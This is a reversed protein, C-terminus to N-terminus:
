REEAKKYSFKQKGNDVTLTETRPLSVRDEKVQFSLFCWLPM